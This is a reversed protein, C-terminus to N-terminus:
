HRSHSESIAPAHREPTRRAPRLGPALVLTVAVSAVAMVAMATAPSTHQAVTGALAAGIGQMTLMGSSHLGLAQGQIDGPTLAM